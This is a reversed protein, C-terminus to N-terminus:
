VELHPPDQGKFRHYQSLMEVRLLDGLHASYLLERSREANARMRSKNNEGEVNLSVGDLRDVLEGLEALLSRVPSMDLTEEVIDEAM